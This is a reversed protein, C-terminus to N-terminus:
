GRNLFQLDSVIAKRTILLMWHGLRRTIFSYNYILFSYIVNNAM